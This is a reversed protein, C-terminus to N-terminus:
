PSIWYLVWALAVLIGVTAGLYSGAQKLMSVVRNDTNGLTAYVVSVALCMLLFWVQMM